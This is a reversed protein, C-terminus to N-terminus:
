TLADGPQKLLAALETRIRDLFHRRDYARAYQNLAKADFRRPDFAALCAGLAEPTSKEFFVGTEGPRIFDRAGGERYAVVPTGCAMAEIAIMGFDEVGPFLLAKANQLLRTFTPDDPASVFETHKGARRRLSAEMPGSGAIILRQGAAECADIALDFRKYSVLAGAALVYGGRDGTEAAPVFREVEIPPHVVVSDRDYLKRAREGVFSSNVVFRDVRAASRVDWERLRPTMARIAAEAGPIHRVGQIYEEQQDWIYRM